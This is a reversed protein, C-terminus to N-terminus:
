AITGQTTQAALYEVLARRPFVIKGGVLASSLVGAKRMQYLRVDSVGLFAAADRAKMSGDQALHLRRLENYETRSITVTKAATM